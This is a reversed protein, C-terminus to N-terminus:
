CCSKENSKVEQAQLITRARRLGHFLRSKVTGLPAGTIEAIEKLPLDHYFRLVLVERQEAPLCQLLAAVQRRDSAQLSLKEVDQRAVLGKNGLDCDPQSVVERRVSASRFHDCALNHAISFVWARFCRPTEGEYTLLRVFTEQVLDEATQLQGTFRYLFKLIPRHYRAVLEALAERDGALSCAYLQEDSELSM